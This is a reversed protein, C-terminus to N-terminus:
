IRIVAVACPMKGDAIEYTVNDYGMDKFFSKYSDIDFQRKFNAGMKNFTGALGTAMRNEKNIYTPIILLGNPKVVRELEKMAKKPDDLLHIVNGAIVKDFSDNEFELKTIDAFKFETNYQGKMKKMCKKLMNKSFDTAVYHRTKPATSTTILGTGCACELVDDTDNMHDACIKATGKIVRNNYVKEFVDYVPAIKNWFM